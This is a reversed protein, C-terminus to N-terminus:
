RRPAPTVSSPRTQLRQAEQASRQVSATLQAVYAAAPGTGATQGLAGLDTLARQHTAVQASIWQTDFNPAGGQLRGLVNRQEALSRAVADRQAPTLAAGGGVQELRAQQAEHERVLSAAFRKLSPTSLREVGIRGADIQGSNILTLVARM